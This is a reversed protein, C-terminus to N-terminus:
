FMYGVNLLGWDWLSPGEFDGWNDHWNGEVSVSAFGLGFLLSFGNEWYWVYDFTIGNPKIKYSLTTSKTTSKVTIKGSSTFLSLGYADVLYRTTYEMGYIDKELFRIRLVYGAHEIRFKSTTGYDNYAEPSTPCCSEMELEERFYGMGFRPDLYFYLSYGSAEMLHGYTRIEM